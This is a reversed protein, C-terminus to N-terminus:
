NAFFCSQEHLVSKKYLEKCNNQVVVVHFNWFGRITVCKIASIDYTNENVIKKSGSM